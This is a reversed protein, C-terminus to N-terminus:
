CGNHFNFLCPFQPSNQFDSAKRNTRKQKSIARLNLENSLHDM